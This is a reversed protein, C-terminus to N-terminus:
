FRAHSNWYRVSFTSVHKMRRFWRSRMHVEGLRGFHEEVFDFVTEEKLSLLTGLAEKFKSDANFWEADRGKLSELAEQLKPQPCPTDAILKLDFAGERMVNEAIGVITQKRQSLMEEIVQAKQNINVKVRLVVVDKGDHQEIRPSGVVELHTLPTFL